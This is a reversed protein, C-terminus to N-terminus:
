ATLRTIKGGEDAFSEVYRRIYRVEGDPRVLRHTFSTRGAQQQSQRIKEIV